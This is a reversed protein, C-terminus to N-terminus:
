EDEELGCHELLRQRLPVMDNDWGFGRLTSLPEDAAAIIKGALKSNLGLLPAVIEGADEAGCREDWRLGRADNYVATIPCDECYDVERRITGGVDIRWGDKPLAEFFEDLTM